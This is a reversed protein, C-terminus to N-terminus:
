QNPNKKEPDADPDEDIQWTGMLNEVIQDLQEEQSEDLHEAVRPQYTQIIKLFRTRLERRMPLVEKESEVLVQKIAAEQEATLRLRHDLFQVILASMEPTSRGTISRIQKKAFGLSLLVGSIVGLFFLVTMLLYIRFKM